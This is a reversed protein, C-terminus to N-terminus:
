FYLLFLLVQVVLPVMLEYLSGLILVYCKDFAIHQLLTAPLTHALTFTTQTSDYVVALTSNNLIQLRNKVVQNGGVSTFPFTTELTKDFAIHQLLTPTVM